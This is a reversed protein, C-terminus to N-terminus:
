LWGVAFPFKFLCNNKIITAIITKNKTYKRGAREKLTTAKGDYIKEIKIRIATSNKPLVM